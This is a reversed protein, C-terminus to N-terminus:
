DNRKVGVINNGEFWITSGDRQRYGDIQRRGIILRDTPPGEVMYAQQREIIYDHHERSRERDDARAAMAALVLLTCIASVILVWRNVTADEM